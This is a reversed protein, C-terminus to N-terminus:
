TRGWSYLYSGACDSRVSLVFFETSEQVPFARLKKNSVSYM